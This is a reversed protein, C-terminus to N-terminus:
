GDIGPLRPLIGVGSVGRPFGGSRYFLGGSVEPWVHIGFIAEPRGGTDLANEAIMLKAGGEEGAPAGEEAPQFLFKVSGPIDAKMAALVQAAGMLMATHADHGCAHMVPVQKGNYEGIAKSAFSLGTKELVPLADMDARLAVMPGPKGGRLIGVVGTHAIGTHVEDFGLKKLHAEVKAATRVERNSLEPHQHIDHRWEIVSKEAQDALKNIQADFQQAHVTIQLLLTMGATLSVITRRACM